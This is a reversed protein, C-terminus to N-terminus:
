NLVSLDTYAQRVHLFPFGTTSFHKQLKTHKVLLGEQSTISIEYDGITAVFPLARDESRSEQPLIFMAMVFILAMPQVAM